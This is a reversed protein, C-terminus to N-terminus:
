GNASVVRGPASYAPLAYIDLQANTTNQAAQARLRVWPPRPVPLAVFVDAGGPLGAGDAGGFLTTPWVSFNVGDFSFAVEVVLTEVGFNRARVMAARPLNAAAIMPTITVPIAAVVGSSAAATQAIM